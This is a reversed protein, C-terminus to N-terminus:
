RHLAYNTILVITSIFGEMVLDSITYIAFPIALAVIVVVIVIVLIKRNMHTAWLTFPACNYHLTICKLGKNITDIYINCRCILYM